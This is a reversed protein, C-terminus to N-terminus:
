DPPPHRLAAILSRSCGNASLEDQDRVLAAPTPAQTLLRAIAIVAGAYYIWRPGQIFYLVFAFLAIAQAFAIRVFLRTRFSGALSRDSACDIPREIMRPAVLCVVTVVFLTLLGPWPSKPQHPPVLVLVIGFAVLSLVFSAYVNRLMLLGDGRAQRMQRQLMGPVILILVRWGLRWGPDRDWQEGTDGTM